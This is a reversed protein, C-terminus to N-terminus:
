NEEVTITCWGYEVPEYSACVDSLIDNLRNDDAPLYYGVKTEDARIEVLARRIGMAIEYFSANHSDDVERTDTVIYNGHHVKVKVKLM